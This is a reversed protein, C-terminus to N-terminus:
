HCHVDVLLAVIDDGAIDDPQRGRLRRRDLLLPGMLCASILTRRQRRENDRGDECASLRLLVGKTGVFPFTGDDPTVIELAKLDPRGPTSRFRYGAIAMPKSSERREHSGGSVSNKCSASAITGLYTVRRRVCLRLRIAVGVWAVCQEGKALDVADGVCRRTLVQCM